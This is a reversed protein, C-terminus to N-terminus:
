QDGRRSSTIGILAWLFGLAMIAIMVLGFQNQASQALFWDVASMEMRRETPELDYLGGVLDEHVVLVFPLGSLGGSFVM